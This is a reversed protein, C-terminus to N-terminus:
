HNKEYENKNIEYLEPIWNNNKSMNEWDAICKLYKCNVKDYTYLVLKMGLNVSASKFGTGFESIDDNSREREYTWCFIAKINDISIGNNANDAIQIVSLNNYIDPIFNIYIDKSNTDLSNDIFENICREFTYNSAKAKKIEGKLTPRNDTSIMIINKIYIYNLFIFYDIKKIVIIIYIM